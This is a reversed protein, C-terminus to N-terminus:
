KKSPASGGFLLLAKPCYKHEWFLLKKKFHKSYVLDQTKTQTQIWESVTNATIIWRPDDKWLSYERLLSSAERSPKKWKLLRNHVGM